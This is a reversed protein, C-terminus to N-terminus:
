KKILLVIGVVAAVAGGILYYMTEDSYRGTLAESAEELPADAANLGFFVLVAGLILLVLGIIKNTKM